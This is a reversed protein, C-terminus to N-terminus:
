IFSHFRCIIILMINRLAHKLEMMMMMFKMMIIINNYFLRVAQQLEQVAGFAENMGESKREARDRIMMTAIIIMMIMMIKLKGEIM